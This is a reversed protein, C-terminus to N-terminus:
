GSAASPFFPLVMVAIGIRVHKTREAIKVAMLLPHPCYGYSSFHHEALWVSDCGLNDAAAALEITRAYVKESPSMEPSQNLFFVGFKM